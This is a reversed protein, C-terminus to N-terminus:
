TGGFCIGAWQNVGLSRNTWSAGDTSTVATQALTTSTSTAVFYSGTWCMSTFTSNPLAGGNSWTVGDSSYRSATSSGSLTLYM